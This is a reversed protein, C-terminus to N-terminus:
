LWIAMYPWSHGGRRFKIWVGPRLTSILWSGNWLVAVVSWWTKTYAAAATECASKKQSACTCAAHAQPRRWRRRPLQALSQLPDRLLSRIFSPQPFQLPTRIPDLLSNLIIQSCRPFDLKPDPPSNKNYIHHSSYRLLETSNNQKMKNWYIKSRMKPFGSSGENEHNESRASTAM